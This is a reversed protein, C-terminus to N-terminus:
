SIKSFDFCETSSDYIKKFGPLSNVCVERFQPENFARKENLQFDFQPFGISHISQILRSWPNIFNDELSLHFKALDMIGVIQSFSCWLRVSPRYSISCRYLQNTKWGNYCDQHRKFLVYGTLCETIGEILMKHKSIINPFKNWIRSYLSVGHLIEHILTKRCWSNNNDGNEHLLTVAPYYIHRGRSSAPGTLRQNALWEAHQLIFVRKPADLFRGGHTRPNRVFLALPQQNTIRYRVESLESASIGYTVPLNFSARIDEMAERQYQVLGTESKAKDLYEDSISCHV